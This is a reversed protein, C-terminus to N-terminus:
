GSAPSSGLSAVLVGDPQEKPDPNDVEIRFGHAKLISLCELHIDNGHTGIMLTKIKGTRLSHEGGKLIDVELGQVDMLLLDVPTGIRRMLHDLSLTRVRFPDRRATESSKSGRRALLVDILNKITSTLPQPEGAVLVSGYDQDLLSGKGDRISIAEQRVTFDKPTLGNLAINEDFFKRHRPLPEVAHITLHPSLLKALICYYGVAAGINLFCGRVPLTSVINLFIEEEEAEHVNRKDYRDRQIQTLHDDFVRVGNDFEHIKGPM